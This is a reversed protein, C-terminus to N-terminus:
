LSQDRKRRGLERSLRRHCITCVLQLNQLSNNAPNGDRHHIDHPADFEDYVPQDDSLKGKYPVVQTLVPAVEYARNLLWEIVFWDGQLAGCNDCHNAYYSDGVTKSYGKKFFPYRSSLAWGIDDRGLWTVLCGLDDKLAIVRNLHDCRYCPFGDWVEVTLTKERPAPVLRKLETGCSECRGKCREWLLRRLDDRIHSRRKSLM